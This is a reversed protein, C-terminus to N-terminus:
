FNLKKAIEKGKNKLKVHKETKKVRTSYFSKYLHKGLAKELPQGITEANKRLNAPKRTSMRRKWSPSWLM